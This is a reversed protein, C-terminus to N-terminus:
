ELASFKEFDIYKIYRESAAVVNPDTFISSAAAEGLMQFSFLFSEIEGEYKAADKMESACSRTLLNTVIDAMALDSSTKDREAIPYDIKIVPHEAILMYMWRVIQHKDAESTSKVLCVGLKESFPGSFVPGSLVFLTFFIFLSTKTLKM